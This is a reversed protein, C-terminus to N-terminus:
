GTSSQKLWLRGRVKQYFRRWRLSAYKRQNALSLRGRYIRTFRGLLRGNRALIFYPPKIYPDYHELSMIEAVYAIRDLHSRNPGSRHLLYSSFVLLDGRRVTVPVPNRPEGIWQVHAGVVRHPQLGQRHSGPLLWIGGNEPYTDVLPVWLQVYEDLLGGYGNDQHWPFEPAGPRKIVAQDKRVFFGSGILSKLLDVIKPQALFSQLEPSQRYLYERFVLGERDLPSPASPLADLAAALHALEPASFFGPRVLYGDQYFDSAVAANM